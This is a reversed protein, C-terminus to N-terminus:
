RGGADINVAEASNIYSSLLITVLIIVHVESDLKLKLNMYM